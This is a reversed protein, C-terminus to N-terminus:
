PNHHRLLLTQNKIPTQSLPLKQQATLSNAPSYFRFCNRGADKAQYMADDAKKMLAKVDLGHTPFIAIGISISITIIHQEIEFPQSIAMVVKEAVSTAEQEDDMQALLIVFEDGGLRAVTDSERKMCAQLRYAVERLLLDGIAHGLQDNVPKFKDLDLFMLALKAKERRVQALAQHLRDTLLTRNPLDTLVDYHAMHRVEDEIAKRDTIDLMTGVYHSVTEAEDKVATITLWEPYLEGNKRRNWVEGQWCGSTHITSWMSNYFEANHLDSKLIDIKRGIVDNDTFGTIQTFSQNIKLIVHNADTIVIGEQSEFATAAIRLETELRKRESIDQVFTFSFETGQYNIYHGTIDINFISGDKRQHRSEINVIHESLLQQWCDPWISEPFDPDIDWPYLGILEERTYGLSKCAYDNVYLFKGQPDLRYVATKCKDLMTKNLWLEQEIQKRETVDEYIGLVGVVSGNQNRLPVKSTHLCILHGYPTTQPEDYGLKANGTQMVTQDDARYIEAQEKWSLQNDLKGIISNPDSEGADHAFTTNCGLYRSNLDKWFVRTPITEIISKLINRSEALAESIRAKESIDYFVVLHTAPLSAQLPAATALITKISGNKCRIKVELPEFSNGSSKMSNLRTEWSHIVRRRYDVDPYAKPWWDQMTPIDDLSYGFVKSFEPNINVIDQAKALAIPVPCSNIISSLLHNDQEAISLLALFYIILGSIISAVILSAVLGTLLYNFTVTGELLFNMSAVISLTMLMSLLVAILWVHWKQKSQVYSILTNKLAKSPKDTEDQNYILCM